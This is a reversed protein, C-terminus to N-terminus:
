PASDLELPPASNTAAAEYAALDALLKQYYASYQGANKAGYSLLERAREFQKTQLYSIALAQDTAVLDTGSLKARSALLYPIAEAFERRLQHLRGLYREAFGSESFGRRLLFQGQEIERWAEARDADSLQGQLKERAVLKFYVYEMHWSTYEPVARCAIEYYRLADDYKRQRMFVRAVMGSLPRKAGAHPRYTQWERLVPLLEPAITREFETCVSNFREYAGPNSSRLFPVDFLVRMSHAVGYRDFPNDGLRQAYEAPAATRAPAASTLRAAGPLNTLTAVFTEAMLLQGRLTPHVHDDMLEWGICGGPSQARFATELDCLITGQEETARRIASQLPSAARWPMTDLDRALIFHDRAANTLGAAFYDKALQFHQLANTAAPTAAPDRGIPALDRENTPLTCIMVPVNQARCRQIMKTLNGHLIQAAADRRWDAPAIFDQGVMTEMLTRDPNGPNPGRWKEWAQVLALSHFFRTLPLQWPKAGGPGISAVGYTGFFENHGTHVIVLDPEYALAETLMGLVPYSAVATTGLNIVEVRRDPWADQLMAAFFSAATLQRPQPYGKIASEGVLFIRFTNTPKPTVFTYQDNYGPRTRNAFFWSIAGAQDALVLTGGKVPGVPRLLPPYGGFGFLRLLLEGGLVLAVPLILAIFKFLWRVRAADFPPKTPAAPAPQRGRSKSM